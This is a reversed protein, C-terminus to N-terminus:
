PSERVSTINVPAPPWPRSSQIVGSRYQRFHWPTLIFLFSFRNEVVEGAGHGALEKDVGATGTQRERGSRSFPRLNALELLNMM